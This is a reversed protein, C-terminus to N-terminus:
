HTVYLIGSFDFPSNPFLALWLHVLNFYRDGRGLSGWFVQIFKPQEGLLVALTEPYAM